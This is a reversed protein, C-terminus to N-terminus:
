HRAMAPVTSLSIETGPGNCPSSTAILSSEPFVYSFPNANKSPTGHRRKRATPAAAQIRENLDLSDIVAKAYTSVRDALSAVQLEEAHAARQEPDRIVVQHIFDGNADIIAPYVPHLSVMMEKFAADSMEAHVDHAM